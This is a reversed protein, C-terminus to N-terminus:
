NWFVDSVQSQLEDREKNRQELEQVLCEIQQAIDDSDEEGGEAVSPKTENSALLAEKDQILEDVKQKAKEFLSKYDKGGGTEETQSAQHSCEKKVSIQSLEQLRKQADQLQDTLAHVQEELADREQAVAEMIGQESHFNIGIDMSQARTMCTEDGETQAPPEPEEQKVKPAETQTTTTSTSIECFPSRFLSTKVAASGTSDTRAVNKDLADLMSINFEEPETKMQSLEIDTLQPKPISANEMILIDDNMDVDAAAAAAAPVSPSTLPNVNM